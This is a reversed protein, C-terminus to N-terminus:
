TSPTNGERPEEAEAGTRSSIAPSIQPPSGSGVSRSLRQM